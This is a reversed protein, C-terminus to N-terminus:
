EDHDEEIDSEYSVPLYLVERLKQDYTKKFVKFRPDNEIKSKMAIVRRMKMTSYAVILWDTLPYLGIVYVCAHNGTLQKINVFLMLYYFTIMLFTNLHGVPHYAMYDKINYYYKMIFVGNLILKVYHMTCILM